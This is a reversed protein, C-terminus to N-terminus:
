GGTDGGEDGDRRLARDAPGCKRRLSSRPLPSRRPPAPARLATPPTEAKTAPETPPAQDAPREEAAPQAAAASEPATPVAPAAVPPTVAPLPEKAEPAALPAPTQGDAPPKESPSVQSTTAAPAAPAPAPEAPEAPEQDAPATGPTSAVTATPSEQKVVPKDAVTDPSNVAPPSEGPSAATAGELPAPAAPQPADAAFLAWPALGCGIALIATWVTARRAVALWVRDLAYPSKAPKM